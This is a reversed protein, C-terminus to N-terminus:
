KIILKQTEISKESSIVIYFVGVGLEKKCLSITGSKKQFSKVKLGLINFVEVIDKEDLELKANSYTPNPYLFYPKSVGNVYSSGDINLSYQQANISPLDTSMGGFIGGGLPPIEINIVINVDVNFDGVQSPVGNILICGNDGANYLCNAIDCDANLGNPLGQVDFLVHNVDVTMVTPIGAAMVLPLINAPLFSSIDLMTDEITVLTLTESYQNNLYGDSVGIM